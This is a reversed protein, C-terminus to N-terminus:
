SIHDFGFLLTDERISLHVRGAECGESLNDESAKEIGRFIRTAITSARGRKHDFTGGVCLIM